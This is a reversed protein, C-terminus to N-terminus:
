DESFKFYEMDISSEFDPANQEAKHQLILDSIKEKSKLIDSM